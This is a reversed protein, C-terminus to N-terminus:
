PIANSKSKYDITYRRNERAKDETLLDQYGLGDLIRIAENFMDPAYSSRGDAYRGAMWLTNRLCEKLIEIERNKKNV